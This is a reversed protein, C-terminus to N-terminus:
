AEEVLQGVAHVEAGAVLQSKLAPDSMRRIQMNTFTDM